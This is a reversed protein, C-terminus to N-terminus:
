IASGHLRHLDLAQGKLCHYAREIGKHAQNIVTYDIKVRDCTDDLARVGIVIGTGKRM